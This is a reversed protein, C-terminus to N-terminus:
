RLPTPVTPIHDQDDRRLDHQSPPLDFKGLDSSVRWYAPGPMRTHPFGCTPAFVWAMVHSSHNNAPDFHQLGQLVQQRLLPAYRLLGEHWTYVILNIQFTQVQGSHPRSIVECGVWDIPIGNLRLTDRLVMRVLDRYNIPNQSLSSVGLTSPSDASPSTSAPNRSSRFLDFMPVSRFVSVSGIKGTIGPNEVM